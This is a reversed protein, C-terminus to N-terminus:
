SPISADLDATSMYLYIYVYIYIYRGTNYKIEATQFISAIWTTFIYAELLIM